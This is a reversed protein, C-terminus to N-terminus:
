GAAEVEDAELAAAKGLVVDAVELGSVLAQEQFLVDAEGVADAGELGGGGCRVRVDLVEDVEHLVGM